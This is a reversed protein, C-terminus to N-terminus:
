VEPPEYAKLPGYILIMGGQGGIGEGRRAGSPSKGAGPPRGQGQWVGKGTNKTEIRIDQWFTM